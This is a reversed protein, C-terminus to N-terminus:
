DLNGVKGIRLYIPFKVVKPGNGDEDWARKFEEVVGDNLLEVGKDRASQSASASQTYTLYEELDMVKETKFEFPGTHDVGDGVPEFPFDINTYKDVVWNRGPSWYPRSDVFYIRRFISDVAENVEPNTYCWAAIVGHPKKLVWKVQHYFTPLDFWHLAQAVIVLDVSSQESVLNKLEALSMNPPTHQYRVNPFKRAFQLQGQSTDTAIVNKYIEALSAAAQGSGTGVDWALNHSPTKSAIFQFLEEPYNPRSKWYLNGQKQFLDPADVM